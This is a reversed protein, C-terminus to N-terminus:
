KGSAVRGLDVLLLRIADAYDTRTWAQGIRLSRLLGANVAEPDALAANVADRLAVPNDAPVLASALMEYGAIGPVDSVITATRSSLASMLRTHGSSVRDNTLSVIYLAAHALLRDHEDRPLDTLVTAGVERARRGIRNAEAPACVITLPWSQGQAADLLTDWDCSQYGSSMIGHRALDPDVHVRDDLYYFPVHRMVELPLSYERAYLAVEPETMVQVLLCVRKLLIRYATAVARGLLGSKRGPLFELLVLKRQRTLALLMALSVVGPPGLRGESTIILEHGRAAAHMRIGAVFQTLRRRRPPALVQAEILDGYWINSVASPVATM